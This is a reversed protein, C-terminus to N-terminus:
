ESTGELVCGALWYAHVSQAGPSHRHTPSLPLGWTLRRGASQATMSALAAVSPLPLRSTGGLAHPFSERLHLCLLTSSHLMPRRTYTSRICFPVPSCIPLCLCAFHTSILTLIGLSSVVPTGPPCSLSSGSLQLGHGPALGLHWGPKPHRGSPLASGKFCQNIASEMSRNNQALCSKVRNPNKSLQRSFRPTESCFLPHPSGRLQPSVWFCTLPAMMSIPVDSDQFILLFVGPPSTPFLTRPCSVACILGGVPRERNTYSIEVLNLLAAPPSSLAVPLHLSGFHGPGEM